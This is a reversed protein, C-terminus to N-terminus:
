KSHKRLKRLRVTSDRQTDATGRADENEPNCHGVHLVVVPLEYTQSAFALDCESMYTRGDSGCVDGVRSCEGLGDSVRVFSTLSSDSQEPSGGPSKITNHQNLTGRICMGDTINVCRWYARGM